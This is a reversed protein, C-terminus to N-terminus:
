LSVFGYEPQCKGSRAIEMTKHPSLCKAQRKKLYSVIWTKSAKFNVIEFEISLTIAELRIDQLRLSGILLRRTELRDKLEEYMEPSFIEPRYHPVVAPFGSEYRKIARTLTRAEIRIHCEDRVEKVVGSICIVNNTIRLQRAEHIAEALTQLDEPTYPFLDGNDSEDWDKEHAEKLTIYARAIPHRTPDKQIFSAGCTGTQQRLLGGQNLLQEQLICSARNPLGRRRPM